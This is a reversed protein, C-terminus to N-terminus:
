PVSGFSLSRASAALFAFSYCEYRFDFVKPTGSLAAGPIPVAMPETRVASCHFRPHRQLGGVHDVAGAAFGMGTNIPDELPLIKEMRPSVGAAIAELILSIGGARSSPEM